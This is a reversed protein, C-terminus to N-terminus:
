YATGWGGITHYGSWSGFSYGAANTPFTFGSYTAPLYFVTGGGYVYGIISSDSDYALFYTTGAVVPTSTISISNWGPTVATSTNVANLLAGPTGANNAYIAVKVNGSSNAKIGIQTVNGSAQAVYEDWLIYNSVDSGLPTVDGNGILIQGTATFTASSAAWASGASNQAFARYFYTIGPTVTVNSSFTGLPTNGLPVNNAWNAPTTGGDTTGWYVTVATLAGGNSTLSGVLQESAIPPLYVAGSSNTVTPATVTV